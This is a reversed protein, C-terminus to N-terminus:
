GRRLPDGIKQVFDTTPEQLTQQCSRTEDHMRLAGVKFADESQSLQLRGGDPMVEPWQITM